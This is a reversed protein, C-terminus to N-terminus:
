SKKSNNLEQLVEEKLIELKQFVLELDGANFLRVKQPSVTVPAVELYQLLKRVLGADLGMVRAFETPSILM